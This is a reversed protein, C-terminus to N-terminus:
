LSATQNDDTAVNVARPVCAHTSHQASAYYPGAGRQQVPGVYTSGPPVHNLEIKVSKLKEENEAYVQPAGLRADLEPARGVVNQGQAHRAGHCKRKLSASRPAGAGRAEVSLHPVAVTSEEAPERSM